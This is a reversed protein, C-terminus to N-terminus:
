QVPELGAGAVECEGHGTQHGVGAGVAGRREMLLELAMGSM